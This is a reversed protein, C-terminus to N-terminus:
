FNMAQRIFALINGPAIGLQVVAYLCFFLSLLIGPQAELDVEGPSPSMYMIVIIRLYYYVSVLSALVAIIVLGSLGREVATEFVLFKALFGGTPPFGALSLLFVSLMAGIWPSALGVGAFEDLDLREKGSRELAVVASFAGINMFAYVVLYFTLGPGDGSVVAILAYGSHAISSYALIRKINRQRLAALNGVLMTLAASAGLLWRLQAPMGAGTSLPGLFRLLVAFGAAKPVVSFFATIPTPAGEYVDPAWMHFPVIVIKFGFAVLVFGLGALAMWSPPTRRLLASVTAMDLSGAAGYLFALGFVLFAGALSGIMFFKAASEASRPDERKLGALAYSAVSLVELGLFIVILDPSSVMIVAGSVALLLLVHFPGSEIGHRDVYKLGILITLVGMLALLALFIISFNDLILRGGFFFSAKGWSRFGLISSVALAFVGIPAPFGDTKASFFAEVILILLAAGVIGALPASAFVSNM